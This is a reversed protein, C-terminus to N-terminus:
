GLRSEIARRRAGAAGGRIVSFPVAVFTFISSWILAYFFIPNDPARLWDTLCGWVYPVRLGIQPIM